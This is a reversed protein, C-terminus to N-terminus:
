PTHPKKKTEKRGTTEVFRDLFVGWFSSQFTRNITRHRKPSGKRTQELNTRIKLNAVSFGFFTGQYSIDSSILLDSISFLM